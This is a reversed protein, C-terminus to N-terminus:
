TAPRARPRFRFYSWFLISAAGFAVFLILAVVFPVSGSPPLYGNAPNLFIVIFAFLGLGYLLAWNLRQWRFALEGPLFRLPMLGFVVGEIGAVVIAALIAEIVAGHFTDQVGPTRIAGLTLWAIGALALMWWAGLTGARGEHPPEIKRLFAYAIVLGYLYGPLYGVLRSLLVCGAGVLLTAPIVWLRGRDGALRAHLARRPLDSTWAVVVLALVIGAYTGVSRQDFGFTPDLFGYLLGAVLLFGVIGPERWWAVPV